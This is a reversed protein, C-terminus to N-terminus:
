LIWGVGLREINSEHSAWAEEEKDEQKSLDYDTSSM